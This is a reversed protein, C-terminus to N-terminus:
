WLLRLLAYGAFTAIPLLTLVMGVARGTGFGSSLITAYRLGRGLVLASGGAVLLSRPAAAAEAAAKALLAIPVTETFNDHARVLRLLRVDGGDFFQIGTRARHLGGAVTIPVQALALVCAFPDLRAVTPAIRGGTLGEEV